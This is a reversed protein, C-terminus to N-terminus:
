RGVKKREWWLQWVGFLLRVALLTAATVALEAPSAGLWALGAALLMGSYFSASWRMGRLVEDVRQESVEDGEGGGAGAGARAM